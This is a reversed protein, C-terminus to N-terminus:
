VLNALRRERWNCFDIWDQYEQWDTFNAVEDEVTAGWWGHHAMFNAVLDRNERQFSTELNPQRFISYDRWGSSWRLSTIWHAIFVNPPPVSEGWPHPECELDPLNGQYIYGGLNHPLLIGCQDSRCAYPNFTDSTDSSSSSPRPPSPTPPPSGTSEGSSPPPEGIESRPVTDDSASEDGDYDGDDHGDGDESDRESSKLDAFPSQEPPFNLNTWPVTASDHFGLEPTLERGSESLVTPGLKLTDPSTPPFSPFPSRPGSSPLTPDLNTTDPPFPSSALLSLPQSSASFQPTPAPQSPGTDNFPPPSPSNSFFLYPDNSGWLTQTIPFLTQGGSPITVSPNQSRSASRQRHIPSGDCATHPSSYKSNM